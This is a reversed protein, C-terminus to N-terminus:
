RDLANGTLTDFIGYGRQREAPAPVAAGGFADSLSPGAPKPPAACVQNRIKITEAHQSRAEKVAEAPVGCRKQNDVLFKVM